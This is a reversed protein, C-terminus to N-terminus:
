LIVIQRKLFAFPKWNENYLYFQKFFSQRNKKFLFFHQIFNKLFRSFNYFYISFILCGWRVWYLRLFYRLTLIIVVVDVVINKKAFSKIQNFKYKFWIQQLLCRLIKFTVKVQKTKWNYDNNVTLFIYSNYM